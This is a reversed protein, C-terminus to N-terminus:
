NKCTTKISMFISNLKTSKVTQIILKLEKYIPNLPHKSKLIMKLHIMTNKLM